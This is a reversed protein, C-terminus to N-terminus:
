MVIEHTGIRIVFDKRERSLILNIGDILIYVYLMLFYLFKVTRLTVLYYINLTDFQTGYYVMEDFHIEKRLYIHNLIATVSDTRIFRGNILLEQIIATRLNVELFHFAPVFFIIYVLWHFVFTFIILIIDVQVNQVVTDRWRGKIKQTLYALGIYKIFPFILFQLYILLFFFIQIAIM